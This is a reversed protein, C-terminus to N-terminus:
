RELRAIKRGLWFTLVFIEIDQLSKDWVQSQAKLTPNDLQM